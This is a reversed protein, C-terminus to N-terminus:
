AERANSQALLTDMWSFIDSELWAVSKPGLHVQRPFSGNAIRRYIESSSLSTIEKVKSFRIFRREPTNASDQRVHKSTM